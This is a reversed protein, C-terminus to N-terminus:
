GVAYVDYRAAKGGHATTPKLDNLPPAKAPRKVVVRRTAVRLAADLLRGADDDDGVLTRLVRMPKREATKRRTPFMPDLYVVNPQWFRRLDDPVDATPQTKSGRPPLRRLMARADTNVLALRAIVDPHEPAARFLADRLLTAILPHREVALVPCGLAALLWADEGFGATADIVTPPLDARRKWGVAKVIPQRLSRGANSTTDLKTLDACIAHGGRNPGRLVRLELRGIAAVLLLDYGTKRPKKILPLSLDVSLRAAATLLARDTPPDACVAISPATHDM